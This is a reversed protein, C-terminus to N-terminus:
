FYDQAKLFEAPIEPAHIKLLEQWLGRNQKMGVHHPYAFLAEALLKPDRTAVADGILTQHEALSTILGHLASPVELDPDPHVGNRDLTLSYELVTRDKFGRVAGRNPLSAALWQPKDGGLARIVLVTADNDGPAFIRPHKTAASAWFADDLNRDLHARFDTDIQRRSESAAAVSRALAAASQVPPRPWKAQMEELFVHMFGDGETSFVVCGFRRYMDQMKRLGYTIHRASLPSVSPLRCPKWDPRAWVEDLCRYLDKGRWTGRLLISFHNVGASVVRYEDRCEDVGQLIRTLDWRHNVFGGCVGLARIRTHNNVMGSYIAVPNAFDVLWAAPCLREMRRALDLIITGGTLARMSGSLSLQDSGIFGRRACAEESRVCVAHSGVPFSVSVLDAGPLAADADGTWWVKCRAQRFEPTQMIMRGVAEVRQANLDVLCVEGDELLGPHSLAARVIPLTRFSGGGVFVIKM